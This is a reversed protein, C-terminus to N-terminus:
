AYGADTSLLRLDIGMDGAVRDLREEFPLEFIVDLCSPATLWDSYALEDEM